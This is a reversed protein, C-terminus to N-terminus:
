PGANEALNNLSFNWAELEYLCFYISKTMWHETESEIQQLKEDRLMPSIELSYKYEKITKFAMNNRVIFYSLKTL